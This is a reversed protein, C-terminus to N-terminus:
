VGYNCVFYSKGILLLKNRAEFHFLNTQATLTYALITPLHIIELGTSAAPRCIRSDNSRACM